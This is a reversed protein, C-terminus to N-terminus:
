ALMIDQGYLHSNRLHSRVFDVKFPMYVWFGNM